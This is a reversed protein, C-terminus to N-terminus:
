RAPTELGALEAMAAWEPEYIHASKAHVVLPGVPVGLEKAVHEQLHALEVLNGYAKKGFDLSHAYVVLELQVATPALLRAPQRVPHLEHRHAAPVDHDGGVAVRPRPAAARGGVRDPRTGDARLRLAADRLEARRGLEAVVDTSWFNRHMWELWDADGLEAILPDTSEPRAVVLTLLAVERTAQSDYSALEGQELITRSM